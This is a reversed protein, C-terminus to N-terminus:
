QTKGPMIAVFRPGDRDRAAILFAAHFSGYTVYTVREESGAVEGIEVIEVGLGLGPAVARGGVPATRVFGLAGDALHEGVFCRSQQRQWVVRRRQELADRDRDALRGIDAEVEVIIRYRMGMDPANQGHEGIRVLHADGVARVDEGAMPAAVVLACLDLNGGVDLREDVVLTGGALVRWRDGRM